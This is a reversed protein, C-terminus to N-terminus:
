KSPQVSIVRFSDYQDNFECHLRAIDMTKILKKEWMEAVEDSCSIMGSEGSKPQFISLRHYMKTGDKSPTSVVSLLNCELDVPIKM